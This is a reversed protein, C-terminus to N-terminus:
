GLVGLWIGSTLAMSRTATSFALSMRLGVAAMFAGCIVTSAVLYIYWGANMAGFCLSLTWAWLTAGFLWRMAYLSGWLKGAVVQGGELPSTLLADWTGRERESSVAVAARLGIALQVLASIWWGTDSIGWRLGDSWGNAAPEDHKVWLEYGALG